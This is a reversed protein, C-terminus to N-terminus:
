RGLLGFVSLVEKLKRQNGEAMPCLPLRMEGSCLGMLGAATKVPIPNTEYFMARFLDFLQYHLEQARKVDGSLFAACLDAVPKPAVNAAVSIVGVGGVALIPLTLADDGSLVAFDPGCLKVVTSIQEVNGCAEKIGVVNEIQALRAVTDPLLNVSTRGPVNYLILPLGTARAVAQFHLFLGEQTPKNYYPTVLLAGDAGVRQAMRTYEIAKRTDNSGTGAVVPVRGRATEVVTKIVLEDEAETMTASEGTTGCPVLGNTGGAIQFEVLERLAKEDVRGDRFPTILAVFSGNFM